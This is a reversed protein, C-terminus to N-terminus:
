LQQRLERRSHIHARRTTAQKRGGYIAFNPMKVEYDHLFVFFHVVFTYHVLLTTTKNM